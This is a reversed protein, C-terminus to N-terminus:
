LHRPRPRGVRREGGAYRHVLGVGVAAGFALYGYDPLLLAVIVSALSAMAQISLDIGGIMIVFTEGTALVFLTATDAALVIQTEPTLFEPAIAGVIVILALLTVIPTIMRLTEMNLWQVGLKNGLRSVINTTQNTM